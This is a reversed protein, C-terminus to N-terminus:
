RKRERWDRAKRPSSQHWESYDVELCRTQNRLAGVAHRLNAEGESIIGAPDLVLPGGQDVRMAVDPSSVDVANPGAVDDVGGVEGGDAIVEEFHENATHNDRVVRTEVHPKQM